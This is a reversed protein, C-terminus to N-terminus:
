ASRTHPTCPPTCSTYMSTYLSTYMLHAHLTSYSTSRFCAEESMYIYPKLTPSTGTCSM